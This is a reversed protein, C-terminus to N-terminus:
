ADDDEPLEFWWQGDRCYIAEGKPARRVQLKGREDRAEVQSEAAFFVLRVKRGEEDLLIESGAPIRLGHIVRDLAPFVSHFITGCDWTMVESGAPVVLEALELERSLMAEKLWGDPIWFSVGEGGRCPVGDIETDVTLTGAVLRGQDDIRANAIPLSRRSQWLESLPPEPDAEFTRLEPVVPPADYTQLPAAADGLCHMVKREDVAYVMGHAITWVDVRAPARWVLERTRQEDTHTVWLGSRDDCSLYRGDSALLGPGSPWEPSRPYERYVIEEFGDRLDYQCYYGPTCVHYIGPTELTGLGRYKVPIERIKTGAIPDIMLWAKRGAFWLVGNVIGVVDFVDVESRLDLTWLERGTVLEFCALVHPRDDRVALLRDVQGIFWGFLPWVWLPEIKGLEWLSAKEQKYDEVLVLEEDLRRVNIGRGSVTSVSAPVKWWGQPPGGPRWTFVDLETTVLSLTGDANFSRTEFPFNWRRWPAYSPDTILDSGVEVFGRYDDRICRVGDVTLFGMTGTDVRIPASWALRFSPGIEYTILDRHHDRLPLQVSM